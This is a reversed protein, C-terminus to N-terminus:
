GSMQIANEFSAWAVPNSVRSESIVFNNDVTDWKVYINIGDTYIVCTFAIIVFLCQYQFCAM